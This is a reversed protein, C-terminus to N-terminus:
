RAVFVLAILTFVFGILLGVVVTVYFEDVEFLSVSAWLTPFFDGVQVLVESDCVFNKLRATSFFDAFNTIFLEVIQFSM